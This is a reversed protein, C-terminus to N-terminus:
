KSLSFFTVKLYHYEIPLKIVFILDFEDPDGYKTGKYYSGGFVIKQNYTDAFLPDVDKM